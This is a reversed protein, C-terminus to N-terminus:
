RLQPPDAQQLPHALTFADIQMCTEFIKRVTPYPELDCGYLMMASTLHPYSVSIPLPPRMAAAFGDQERIMQSCTKSQAPGRSWGISYGSWGYKMTLAWNRSSISAGERCWVRISM